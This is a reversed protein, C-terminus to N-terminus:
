TQTWDRIDQRARLHAARTMLVRRRRWDLMDAVAESLHPCPRQKCGDRHTFWGRVLEDLVLALEAEDAATWTGDFRRDSPASRADATM